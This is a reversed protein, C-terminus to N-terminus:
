KVRLAITYLWVSKIAGDEVRASFASKRLTFQYSQKVLVFLFSLEKQSQNTDEREQSLRLQSGRYQLVKHETRVQSEVGKIQFHM